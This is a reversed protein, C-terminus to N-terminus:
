SPASAVIAALGERFSPYCLSIRLEALMSANSIRKDAAARAARPDGPPPAAFRPPPAHLLRALEAYYDGRRVPH